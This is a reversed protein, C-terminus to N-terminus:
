RFLIVDTASLRSGELLKHEPTIMSTKKAFRCFSVSVNCTCRRYSKIGDEAFNHVLCKDAPFLFGLLGQANLLRM